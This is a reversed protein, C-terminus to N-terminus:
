LVNTGGGVGGGTLGGKLWSAKQDDSWGVFAFGQFSWVADPDTRKLGDYAITGRKYWAPDPQIPTAAATPPPHATDSGQTGAATPQQQYGNDSADAM